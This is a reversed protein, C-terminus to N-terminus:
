KAKLRIRAADAVPANVQGIVAAPVDSLESLRALVATVHQAPVGLLLGGSTQPDFLAKYAACNRQAANDAQIQSETTRNSPALTSEMGDALLEDAGPLLPLDALWLEAHLGSAILMELLHGALGFGTVDTVGQINFEDLLSAATANSLLMTELLPQMWHARCKAQMHAALLVGTGIPKTLILQDGPRLQAKTRIRHVVPETSEVQSALSPAGSDALMTFGITLQPGEITHGGVLTAGMGKLEHLSGSMLEYLLQEQQREPGVPLTATALAARPRAGMAFIDSASNLAAIRGVIFPDDLPAAFFDATVTLPSGTPWRLVAADDPEKLGVLVDESSPIELRALARSLVSGGVKGGCGMCRIQASATQGDTSPRPMPTYDQYKGMFRRDIWDKLKWCSRQHLAIGKYDLIARGDGTNLLKLFNRQPKFETLPQKTLSRAVNERLVPGQRVAYVGARPLPRGEISGCDGVAFVPEDATTQLTSRTRLFGEGDTPLSLKRLLEPAVAKTAWLVLDFEYREGGALEVQGDGISHAERGLLLRVGRRQLERHVLEAARPSLGSNIEGRDILTIECTPQGVHRPLCFAIEIGGAGGGVVAVRLPRGREPRLQALKCDLRELFTQMPKIPIVRADALEQLQAEPVSGIGISLVDFPVAPRDALVLERRVLDVGVTEAQIFRAGAAACLRVLDIQMRDRPYMGALTGPLM